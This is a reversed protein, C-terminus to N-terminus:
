KIHKCLHRACGLPEHGSGGFRLHHGLVDGTHREDGLLGGLVQCLFVLEGPLLCFCLPLDQSVAPIPDLKRPGIWLPDKYEEGFCLAM